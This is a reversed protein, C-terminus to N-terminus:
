ELLLINYLSTTFIKELMKDRDKLSKKAFCLNILLKTNKRHNDRYLTSIPKPVNFDIFNYEFLKNIILNNELYKITQITSYYNKIDDLLEKPKEYLILSYIYDVIDDPIYDPIIMIHINYIM